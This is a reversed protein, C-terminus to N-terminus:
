YATSYRVKNTTHRGKSTLTNEPSLDGSMQVRGATMETSGPLYSLNIAIEGSGVQITETIAEVIRRKEAEEM